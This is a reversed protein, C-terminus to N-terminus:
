GGTGGWWVVMSACGARRAHGSRGVLRCCARRRRVGDARTHVPGKLGRGSSKVGRKWVPMSARHENREMRDKRDKGPQAACALPCRALSCGLCVLVLEGERGGKQGEAQVVQGSPDLNWVAAQVGRVSVTQWPISSSPRMKIAAQRWKTTRSTSTGQLIRKPSFGAFACGLKSGGGKTVLRGRNGCRKLFVQM